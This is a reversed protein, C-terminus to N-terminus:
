LPAPEKASFLEPAPLDNGEPFCEVYARLMVLNCLFHGAHPLGSEFDLPKKERLLTIAHRGASALMHSWAMGKAWNWPAYKKRGYEFVRACDTWYHRMHRIALDLHLVAGTTQFKGLCYLADAVHQEEPYLFGIPPFSRAIQALPILSIDPKGSNYRAGSGRATSNVDGVTM